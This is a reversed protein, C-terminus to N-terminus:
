VLLRTPTEASTGLAERRRPPQAEIGAWGLLGDMWCGLWGLLLADERRAQGLSGKEVEVMLAWQGAEKRFFSSLGGGM